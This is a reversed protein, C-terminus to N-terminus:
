DKPIGNEKEARRCVKDADVPFQLSKVLTELIQTMRARRRKAKNEM